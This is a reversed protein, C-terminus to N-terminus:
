IWSPILIFVSQYRWGLGGPGSIIINITFQCFHKVIIAKHVTLLPIANGYFQGCLSLYWTSKCSNWSDPDCSCVIKTVHLWRCGVQCVAGTWHCLVCQMFKDAANLCDIKVMCIDPSDTIQATNCPVMSQVVSSNAAKAIVGLVELSSIQWYWCM